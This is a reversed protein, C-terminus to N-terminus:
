GRGGEVAPAGDWDGNRVVAANGVETRLWLATEVRLAVGTNTVQAEVWGGPALFRITGNRTVPRGNPLDPDESRLWPDVFVKADEPGLALEAKAGALDAELKRIYDQVGRPLRARASDSITM